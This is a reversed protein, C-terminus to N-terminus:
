KRKLFNRTDKDLALILIIISLIPLTGSGLLALFDISWFIWFVIRYRLNFSILQILTFLILFSNTGMLYGAAYEPNLYPNDLGKKEFIGDTMGTLFGREPNTFITYIVAATTIVIILIKFVLFRSLWIAPKPKNAM